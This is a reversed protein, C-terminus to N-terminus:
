DTVFGTRWIDCLRSITTTWHSFDFLLALFLQIIHEVQGWTGNIEVNANIEEFIM